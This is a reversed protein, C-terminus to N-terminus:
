MLWNIKKLENKVTTESQKVAESIVKIEDVSFKKSEPM